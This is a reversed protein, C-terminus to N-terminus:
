KHAVLSRFNRGWVSFTIDFQGKGDIKFLIDEWVLSLRSYITKPDADQGNHFGSEFGSELLEFGEAVLNIDLTVARKPRNVMSDVYDSPSQKICEHCVTGNDDSHHSPLWDWCNPSTRVAKGCDDCTTWEDSWECEVGMREFIRLLRSMVTNLQKRTGKNRDYEDVDNWNAFLIGNEAHSYGPEAYDHCFSIDEIRSITAYNDGAVNKAAELVREISLM